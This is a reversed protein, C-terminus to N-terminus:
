EGLFTGFANEGDFKRKRGRGVGCNIMIWNEIPHPKRHLGVRIVVTDRISQVETAEERGEM